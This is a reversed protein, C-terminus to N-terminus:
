ADLNAHALRGDVITARVPLSALEAPDLQLPSAAFATLDAQYGPAIRGRAHPQGAAAAAHSTYGELAMLATLAQAPQNPTERNDAPRRRLQAAAMIERPDYGAIPWDSGLVLLAGSDRLDRCRWARNARTQGLRRSWNDSHDARTYNCCHTPQMSAVVGLSAFAPILDDPVSEIHEIRHRTTSGAPVAQRLSALVHRVGADGIAHTSTQVGHQAFFRIAATYAAPDPWFSRTSEGLTDPEQLWATGGDITGDIFFKVGGVQWLNGGRGQLALLSHLEEDSAGPMVWPALCLRMPLPAQAELAAYLELSDAHADMVQAGTLGSAAMGTLLRRLRAVREARTVPPLLRRVLDMAQPELLHGTPRGAADCVVEAHQDFRYPRDVGAARLAAQSVLAAHGDFISLFALAGHLAPEIAGATIPQAGFTNPDLGYGLVWNGAPTAAAAEALATLLDDLSRCGSLDAGQALDMGFVPHSHGDVLGPTLCGGHLDVVQTRRGQLRRVEADDGVATIHGGGIAVATARPSAPDLTIVEAGTLILDALGPRTDRSSRAHLNETIV